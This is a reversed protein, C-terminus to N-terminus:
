RSTDLEILGSCKDGSRALVFSLIHLSSALGLKCTTRNEEALKERIAVARQIAELAGENDGKEVLCVSLNHLSSALGPGYITSNEEALEEYIEVARRIAAFAGEKEGRESLQTSLKRLTLAETPPDIPRTLLFKLAEVFIVRLDPELDTNALHEAVWASYSSKKRISRCLAGM